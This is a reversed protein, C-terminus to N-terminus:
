DSDTKTKCAWTANESCLADVRGKGLVIEWIMEQRRKHPFIIAAVGDPQKKPLRECTSLELEWHRWRWNLATGDEKECHRSRTKCLCRDRYSCPRIVMILSFYNGWLRSESPCWRLGCLALVTITNIQVHSLSPVNDRPFLCLRAQTLTLPKWMIPPKSHFHLLPEKCSKQNQSM